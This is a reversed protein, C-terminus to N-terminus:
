GISRIIEYVQEPSPGRASIDIIASGSRVSINVYPYKLPQGNGAKTEQLAEIDELTVASVDYVERQQEWGTLAADRVTVDLFADGTYSLYIAETAGVAGTEREIAYTKFCREFSLGDPIYKPIYRGLYADSLCDELSCGFSESGGVFTSDEGSEFLSLLPAIRTGDVKAIVEYLGSFSVYGDEYVILRSTVGSDTDFYVMWRSKDSFQAYDYFMWEGQDIADIFETVEARRPDDISYIENRSEFWSERTQYRVGSFTDSIRLMDEFVDSGLSLTLDNSNVFLMIQGDGMRMCLLDEPDYGKVAYFDGSISGSLEVYADRTSWEDISGTATGLREGIIDADKPLYDYQSYFRGGYIFFAIMDAEIGDQPLSIEAKPIYIGVAAAAGSVTQNEVTDDSQAPTKHKEIFMPLLAAGAIVACLCAAAILARRKGASKGRNESEEIIRSDIYGVADLLEHEKM